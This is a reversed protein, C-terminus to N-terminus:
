KLVGLVSLLIKTKLSKLIRIGNKINIKNATIIKYVLIKFRKCLLIHGYIM